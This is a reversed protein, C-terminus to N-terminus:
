KKSHLKIHNRPTNVRLNDLDYLSGGDALREIHHMEFVKRGGVAQEPIVFPSAGRKLARRNAKSFQDLLEADEGVAMWFAKRFADFRKFERGKLQEAIRAPIPVGVGSNAGALWIGIVDEGEGAVVGPTKRVNMVIYLPQVGSGAPFVLIFDQYDPPYVPNVIINDAQESPPYIWIQPAQPAAELPPIGSTASPEVAPTWLLTIGNGFDAVQQEGRAKFRVVPIMEWDRRQETNYGYGKLTGDAQEEIHLRVRTRGQELSKLQEDTYLSSDGLSSPVLMAIVGLLGGAVVGSTVAGGGVTAGCLGGCSAGAVALVNGGLMLGGSVTPVNGSIRGLRINGAADTERGGLLTVEGYVEISQTPIFHSAYNIIGDALNCPKTFTCGMAPSRGQPKAPLDKYQAWREAGLDVPEVGKYRYGKPANPVYGSM